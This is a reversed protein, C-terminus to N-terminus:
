IRAGSDDPRIQLHITKNINFNIITKMDEKYVRVQNNELITNM